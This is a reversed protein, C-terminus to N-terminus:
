VEHFDGDVCWEAYNQMLITVSRSILYSSINRSLLLLGYHVWPCTRPTRIITHVDHMPFM